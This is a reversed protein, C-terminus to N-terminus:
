IILSPIFQQILFIGTSGGLPIALARLVPDSYWPGLAGRQENAIEEMLLDLRALRKSQDAGVTEALAASKATRLRSLIADRTDSAARRASLSGVIDAGLILAWLTLLVWGLNLYAFSPHRAIIFGFVVIFPYIVSKCAVNTREAIIRITFLERVDKKEEVTTAGREKFLADIDGPEWDADAGKLAKAFLRCLQTADLVVFALTIMAMVGVFLVYSSLRQALPGRYPNTPYETAAFLCFGFLLYGLALPVARLLRLRWNGRDWYDNYIECCKPRGLERPRSNGYQKLEFWNFLFAHEWLNTLLHARKRGEDKVWEPWRRLHDNPGHVWPPWVNPKNDKPLFKKNLRDNSKELDACMKVIYYIALIAVVFRIYIPSWLSIGDLLVLPEGDPSAHNKSMIYLPLYIILGLALAGSVVIRGVVQAIMGTTIAVDKRRPGLIPLPTDLILRRLPTVLSFLCLWSVSTGVIIYLWRWGNLWTTQRPSPPQVKINIASAKKSAVLNTLQYPGHLGIEYVLPALAAKRLDRSSYGWPDHRLEPIRVFVDEVRNNELALLAGFFTATQYSDRFPPINGQLWDNLKLGFHSAVILNRATDRESEDSFEADLDTTFFQVQPFSPRLARLILLKDFVDTAVIGIAIIGNRGNTRENDHFSVLEQQMRRLYDFQSRGTPTVKTPGASSEESHSDSESARHDSRRRGSSEGPLEGDLGRLYTVTKVKVAGRVQRVFTEPFTQGYLTDRESVLVVVNKDRDDNPNAWHPRLKLEDILATCLQSDDGITRIISPFRTDDTSGLHLVREPVTARSCYIKSDKFWSLRLALRKENTSNDLEINTPNNNNKNEKDERDLEDKVNRLGDSSKPGIIHVRISHVWQGDTTPQAARPKFMATLIQAIVNLPRSGTQSQDLWFVLVHDSTLRSAFCCEPNTGRDFLKIPVILTRSKAPRNVKDLYVTIPVEVYTMRSPFSSEFGSAALASLVAHTTRMREERDDSYPDGSVLIPLCLLGKGSLDRIQQFMEKYADTPRSLFSAISCPLSSADKEHDQYSPGLPDDWLRSYFSHTGASSPPAPTADSHRVDDRPSHLAPIFHLAGLVAFILVCLGSVLTGASPGSTPKDSNM